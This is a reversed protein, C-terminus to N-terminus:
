PLIHIKIQHIKKKEEFRKWFIEFTVEKISTKLEEFKQNLPIKQDEIIINFRKEIEKKVDKRIDKRM